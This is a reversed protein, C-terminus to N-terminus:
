RTERRVMERVRASRSEFRMLRQLWPPCTDRNALSCTDLSYWWTNGNELKVALQDPPCSEDSVVMGYGHFREHAVRVGRGVPFEAQRAEILREKATVYQRLRSITIATAM